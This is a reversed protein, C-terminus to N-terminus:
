VNRHGEGERRLLVLFPVDFSQEWRLRLVTYAAKVIEDRSIKSQGHRRDEFLIPIEGVRFGRSRVKYLMEILFSYGDSFTQDLDISELVERRYCRFGATCDHVDLGLVWRAFTNASRSLARRSFGWFRTGGGDVYRSGIAVHYTRTLEVLEPVYRPNHSFDADMTMIRDAGLGFACRYGAIYATGLGLKAPRHLPHVRPEARAMEDALAGTGDPSNDDVVIVHLDEAPLALLQTVLDSLNERENYTPVVVAARM